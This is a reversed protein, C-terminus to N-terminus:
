PKGHDTWTMPLAAVGPIRGRPRPMPRFATHAAAPPTDPVRAPLMVYFTSGASAVSELWVRGRHREVMRKVLALGIGDDEPIDGHLREFAKFVKSMSAQAIGRGNDRVYYTHWSAPVSTHGGGDHSMATDQRAADSAGTDFAAGLSASPKTRPTDTRSDPSAGPEDHPAATDAVGIEIVGERTSDLYSLANGILNAFIQEIASTDGYAPPLPALVVRAGRQRITDHMSEIVRSLVGQVDVVRWEYDVRGARSLRRLGDIIHAARTVATQLLGISASMEGDVITTLRAREDQPLALDAVSERLELASVKLEKSFGQLNVLPSRLDHSVSDIFIENDRTQQCLEENVRVLEAARRQLSAKLMAHYREAQALKTGTEHLAADLHAIGDRGPLPAALKSDTGLRRANDILVALREGIQRAFARTILVAIALSALVTGWLAFQQIRLSQQLTAYRRQELRNEEANLADLLGRMADIEPPMAAGRLAAIVTDRQGARLQEVIRRTGRHYGDIMARMTRVRVVQQPNDAVGAELANLREAIDIWLSHKDAIAADGVIVAARLRSAQRLLPDLMASAENIVQRSRLAWHEAEALQRQAGFLAWLLVLEAVSPVAILLLGKVFLRM